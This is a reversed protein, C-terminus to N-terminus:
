QKIAGWTEALKSSPEAVALRQVGEPLPEEPPEMAPDPVLYLADLGTNGERAVIYLDNKGSRFEFKFPEEGLRHAIFDWCWNPCFKDPAAGFPFEDPIDWIFEGLNKADNLKFHFSNSFRNVSRVRGWIYLTKARPIQIEYRAYAQEGGGGPSKVYKEWANQDDEFVSMPPIFEEANEAEIYVTLAALVSGTFSLLLVWVIALFTSRKVSLCRETYYSKLSNSLFTCILLVSIKM